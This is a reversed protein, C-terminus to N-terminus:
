ARSNQAKTKINLTEKTKTLLVAFLLIDDTALMWMM